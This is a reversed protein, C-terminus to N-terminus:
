LGTSFLHTQTIDAHKSIARSAAAEAAAAASRALQPLVNSSHQYGVSVRGLYFLTRRAMRASVASRAISHPGKISLISAKTSARWILDNIFNHRQTRGPNSKRSLIHVGRSDIAAGHEIALLLLM